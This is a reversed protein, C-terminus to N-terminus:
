AEADAKKAQEAQGHLWRAEALLQDGIVDGKRLAEDVTQWFSRRGVPYERASFFKTASPERGLVEFDFRAATLTFDSIGEWIFGAVIQRARNKADKMGLRRAEAVAAKVGIGEFKYLLKLARETQARCYALLGDEYERGIRLLEEETAGRQKATLYRDLVGVLREYENYAGEASRDTYSAYSIAENIQAKQEPTM